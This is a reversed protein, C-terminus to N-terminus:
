QAFLMMKLGNSVFAAGNMSTAHQSGSPGGSPMPSWTRTALDFMAGSAGGTPDTTFAMYGGWAYVKGGMMWYAQEDRLPAAMVDAGPAPITTWTLTAHDLIAGDGPTALPVHIGHGGFFLTTESVKVAPQEGAFMRGQIAPTTIETWTDTKADYTFAEGITPGGGHSPGGGYIVLKGDATTTSDFGLSWHPEDAKYTPNAIVRWTGKTFSYAAGDTIAGIPGPNPFGTPTSSRVGGWIVLEDTAAIYGYAALSRGVIPAKPIMSWTGKCLDFVMGDYSYMDGGWLAYRNPGAMTRVEFGGRALPAPPLENWTDTMPDYSLGVHVVDAGGTPKGIFADYALLEHGTWVGNRIAADASLGVTALSAVSSWGPALARATGGTHFVCDGSPGGDNMGGDTSGTDTSGADNSGGGPAGPGEQDSPDDTTTAPDNPSPNAGREPSRNSGVPSSSCGFVLAGFLLFSARKM